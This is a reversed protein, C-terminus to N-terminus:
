GLIACGFGKAVLDYAEELTEESTHVLEGPNAEHLRRDSLCECRGDPLVWYRSEYQMDLGEHPLQEVIAAREQDDAIGKFQM